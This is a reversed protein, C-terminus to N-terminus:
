DFVCMLSFLSIEGRRVRARRKEKVLELLNKASIDVKKEGRAREGENRNSLAKHLNHANEGFTASERERQHQKFFASPTEGTHGYTHKSRREREGEGEDSGDNLYKPNLIRSAFPLTIWRQRTHDFKSTCARVRM